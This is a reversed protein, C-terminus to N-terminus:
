TIDAPILLWYKSFEPILAITPCKYSELHSMKNHKHFCLLQTSRKIECKTFFCLKLM